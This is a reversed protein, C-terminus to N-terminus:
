KEEDRGIRDVLSGVIGKRRKFEEASIGDNEPQLSRQGIIEQERERQRRDELARQEKLERESITIMVKKLYNHNELPAAFHKNCVVGLAEAIGSKSIRYTKKQFSFRENGFLAAVDRLLRLIKKGKMRLPVVGFLEVYEFALRSHNGFSPLLRIIDVWENEAQGEQPNIEEGCKTCRIM